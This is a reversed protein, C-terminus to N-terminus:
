LRRGAPTAARSPRARALARASCMVTARPRDGGLVLALHHRDGVLEERHLASPATVGLVTSASVPVHGQRCARVRRADCACRVYEAISIVISVLCGRRAPRGGANSTTHGHAHEWCGVWTAVDRKRNRTAPRPDRCFKAKANRASPRAEHLSYLRKRKAGM